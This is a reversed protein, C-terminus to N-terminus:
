FPYKLGFDNDNTTSVKWKLANSRMESCKTANAKSIVTKKRKSTNESSGSVETIMNSIPYLLPIWPPSNLPLVCNGPLHEAQGGSFVYRDVPHVSRERGGAASGV